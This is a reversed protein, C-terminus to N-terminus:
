AVDGAEPLLDLMKNLLARASETRPDHTRVFGLWRGVLDRLEPNHMAALMFKPWDTGCEGDRLNYVHRPTAGIESAVVKAPKSRAYSQLLPSGEREIEALAVAGNMSRFKRSYLNFSM